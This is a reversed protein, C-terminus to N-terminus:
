EKSDSGHFFGIIMSRLPGTERAPLQKFFDLPLGTAEAGVFQLYELNSEPVVAGMPNMNADTMKNFKKTVKVVDDCSWDEMVSLDISTHVNGEFTFPKKLKLILDSM